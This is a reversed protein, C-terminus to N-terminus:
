THSKACSASCFLLDAKMRVIGRATEKGCKHCKCASGKIGVYRVVSGYVAPDQPVNTRGGSQPKAPKKGSM